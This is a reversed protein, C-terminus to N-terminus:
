EEEVVEETTRSLLNSGDNRPLLTTTMERCFLLLDLCSFFSLVTPQMAMGGLVTPQMSVQCPWQHTALGLGFISAFEVKDVGCPSLRWEDTPVTSHSISSLEPCDRCSIRQSSKVGFDHMCFAFRQTKRWLASELTHRAFSRVGGVHSESLFTSHDCM